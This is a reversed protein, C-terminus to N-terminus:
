YDEIEDPIYNRFLSRLIKQYNSGIESYSDLGRALQLIDRKESEFYVQRSLRFNKQGPKINLFHMYDEVSEQMSRYSKVYVKSNKSGFKIGCGASYCHIGFYANGEKAFRSEGWSSELIAQALTLRVPVIQVRLNLEDLAQQVLITDELNIENVHYKESLQSFWHKYVGRLKKKEKFYNQVKLLNKRHKQIKSNSFQAARVISDVFLIRDEEIKKKHSFDLDLERNQYYNAKSYYEKLNLLVIFLIILAIIFLLFRFQKQM